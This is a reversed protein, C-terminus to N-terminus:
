GHWNASSRVQSGGPMDLTLTVQVDKAAHLYQVTGLRLEDAGITVERQLQGDAILLKGDKAKLVDASTRDWSVTLVNEGSVSLKLGSGFVGNYHLWGYAAASGLLVASAAAPVLWKARAGGLKRGSEKATDFAVEPLANFASESFVFERVSPEDPIQGKDCAFFAATRLPSGDILLLLCSREDAQSILLAKDALSPRLPGPRAHTRFLGISAKQLTTGNWPQAALQEFEAPDLVFAPGNTSSRPLMRFDEVRLIPPNSAVRSGILLGGTEIAMASLPRLEWELRRVM